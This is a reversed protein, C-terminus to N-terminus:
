AKGEWCKERYPCWSCVFNPKEFLTFGKPITSANMIRQTKELLALYLRDDYPIKEAFLRQDNKNMVLLIAEKLGSMGMYAQCQAWYQFHTQQCGKKLIEKFGRENMSKIELIFSGEGKIKIIGDAEGKLPPDSLPVQWDQIHVMDLRELEERILEELLKGVRFIRRGRPTIEEQAEEHYDLWIRRDCAHGIQSAGIHTRPQGKTTVSDLLLQLESMSYPESKAKSSIM